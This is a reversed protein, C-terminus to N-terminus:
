QQVFHDRLWKMETGKRLRISKGPCDFMCKSWDPLAFVEEVKFIKRTGHEAKTVLVTKDNESAIKWWSEFELEPGELIIKARLHRDIRGELAGHARQVDKHNGKLYSNIAERTIHTPRWTDKGLVSLALVEFSLQVAGLNFNGSQYMERCSIYWKQLSDAIKKDQM